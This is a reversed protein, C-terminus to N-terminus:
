KTAQEILQKTLSIPLGMVADLTGDIHDVYPQFEPREAGFGGAHEFTKGSKIFDTILVEEFPRKFHIVAKEIGSVRKGSQLNVVVVACVSEVPRGQYGRLM